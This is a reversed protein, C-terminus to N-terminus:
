VGFSLLHQLFAFASFGERMENEVDADRLCSTKAPSKNKDTVACRMRM